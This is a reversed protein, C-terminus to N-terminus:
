PAVGKHLYRNCVSKLFSHEAVQLKCCAAMLRYYLCRRRGFDSPSQSQETVTVCEQSPVLLMVGKPM